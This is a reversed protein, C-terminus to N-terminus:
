KQAAIDGRPDNLIFLRRPGYQTPQADLKYIDFLEGAAAVRYPIEIAGSKKEGCGV